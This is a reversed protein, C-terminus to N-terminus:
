NDNKYLHLYSLTNRSSSGIYIGNEINEFASISNFMGDEASTIEMGNTDAYSTEINKASVDTSVGININIGFYSAKINELFINTAYNVQVGYSIAHWLAARWTKGAKACDAETKLEPSGECIM